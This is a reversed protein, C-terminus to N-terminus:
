KGTYSYSRVTQDANFLVVLEKSERLQALEYFQYSYIWIEHGNELGRRDPEGFNAFIERQTTVNNKIERVPTVPFNRGYYLCGSAFQVITSLLLCSVVLNRM